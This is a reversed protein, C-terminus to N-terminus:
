HPGEKGSSSSCGRSPLISFQRRCEQCPDNRWAAMQPAPRQGWAPKAQSCSDELQTGAEQSQSVRKVRNWKQGTHKGRHDALVEQLGPCKAEPSVPKEGASLFGQYQHWEKKGELPRWARKM